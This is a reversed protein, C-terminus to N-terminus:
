LAWPSYPPNLALPFPSGGMPVLFFFFLVVIAVLRVEKALFVPGGTFPFLYFV